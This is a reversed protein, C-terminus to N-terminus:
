GQGFAAMAAGVAAPDQRNLPDRSPLDSADKVEFNTGVLVHNQLNEGVHPNDVVVEIGLSQLLTAGGIGSLELLRPSNLAGAALVVEKRASVKAPGEKTTYEAGVAVASASNSPKDLLIKSVTAGTIVKLNERLRAPLLYANVSSYRQGTTPDISEPTIMAGSVEGSFPDCTPFGLTQITDTWVKLWTDEPEGVDSVKLHIPGNGQGSLTYSRKVAESFATWDWGENGLGAWAEM